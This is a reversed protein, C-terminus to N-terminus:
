LFQRKRANQRTNTRVSHGKSRQWKEKEKCVRIFRIRNPIISFWSHWQYRRETSNQARNRTFSYSCHKVTDLNYIYFNDNLETITQEYNEIFVDYVPVNRYQFLISRQYVPLLNNSFGYCTIRECSYLTYYRFTSVNHIHLFKENSRVGINSRTNKKSIAIRIKRNQTFVSIRWGQYEYIKVRNRFVFRYWLYCISSLKYVKDLNLYMFTSWPSSIRFPDM